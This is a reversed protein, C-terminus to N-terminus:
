TLVAIFLTVLPTALSFYHMLHLNPLWHTASTGETTAGPTQAVRFGVDILTNPKRVDVWGVNKKCCKLSAVGSPHSLLYYPEFLIIQAVSLRHRRMAVDRYAQLGSM